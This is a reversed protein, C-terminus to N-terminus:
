RLQEHIFEALAKTAKRNPHVQDTASAFYEPHEKWFNHKHEFISWLKMAGKKDGDSYKEFHTYDGFITTDKFDPYFFETISPIKFSCDFDPEIKEIGGILCLKHKYRELINYEM